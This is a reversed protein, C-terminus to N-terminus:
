QGGYGRCVPEREVTTKRRCKLGQKQGQTIGGPYGLDMNTLYYLEPEQQEKEDSFGSRPAETGFHM